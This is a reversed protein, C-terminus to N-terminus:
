VFVLKSEKKLKSYSVQVLHAEFNVCVCGTLVAVFVNTDRCLSVGVDSSM